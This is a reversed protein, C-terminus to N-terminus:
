FLGKIFLDLRIGFFSYIGYLCLTWGLFSFFMVRKIRWKDPELAAAVLTGIPPTLILPTLIAVGILEYKRIFKVVFRRTSNIRIGHFPKKPFYRQRLRSMFEWLYLYVIVGLMGGGVNCILTEIFSMGLGLAV